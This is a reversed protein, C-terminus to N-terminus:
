WKKGNKYFSGCTLCNFTRKDNRVCNVCYINSGYNLDQYVFGRNCKIIESQRFVVFCDNPLKAIETRLELVDEEVSDNSNVIEKDNNHRNVNKRIATTPNTSLTPSEMMTTEDFLYERSEM